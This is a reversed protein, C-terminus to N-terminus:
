GTGKDGFPHHQIDNFIGDMQGLTLTGFPSLDFLLAAFSNSSVCSTVPELGTDGMGIWQHSSM